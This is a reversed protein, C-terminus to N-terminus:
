YHHLTNNDNTDHELSIYLSKRVDIILQSDIQYRQPLPVEIM